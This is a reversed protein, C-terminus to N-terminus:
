YNSHPIWRRTQCCKDVSPTPCPVKNARHHVTNEKPFTSEWMHRSWILKTVGSSHNSEVAFSPLALPFFHLAVHVMSSRCPGQTSCSSNSTSLKQSKQPKARSTCFHDHRHSKSNANTQITALLLLDIDKNLNESHEERSHQMNCQQSPVDHSWTAAGTISVKTRQTNKM